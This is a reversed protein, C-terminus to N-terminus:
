LKNIYGQRPSFLMGENLMKKLIEDPADLGEQRAQRLIDEVPIDKGHVKALDDIVDNLVRIRSRQSSTVRAGEARDIDIKGTEPEFGFMRLSAKMLGIARLADERSVVPRLQVKASAESFRMLAEYQRPTIAIPSDEGSRERLTIYFNKLEEAAERSMKPHCNKRAYAIYKRILQTDIAPAGEEKNFFRSRMMHDAIKTDMEPNPLDRMAFKLDFRSLLTEPIDIQEKIPLYPDFRGLKPNGGALVSTQAPLTAVISAKAISVSQQELAEHLAIQDQKDIKEFEDIAILSRNCMVMAGAELVWGGLFEEDKMVTATLGATSVGKGSVYRGRPILRSVVSMLTSKATNHSVIGNAIFRKHNPVEIDYVTAPGGPVIKTIREWNKGHRRRSLGGIKARLKGIRIKKKECNFGIEEAFREISESQRIMLNNGYIRSHIGFRLLLIQIDRLLEIDKAKYLVGNRGRGGHIVSGNGDYLWSLFSAVVSNKSRMVIDPIRKVSVFKLVDALVKSNYVLERSTGHRNKKLEIRPNLGFKEKFMDRLRPVLDLENYNVACGVRYKSAYGDSVLYGLIAALKEDLVDPVKIDKSQGAKGDPVKWGTEQYKRISCPIRRITRVEDGVKMEDLRKWGRKTLLPHNFTGRISKGSETVVEITPQIEYKHFVTATGRRYGEGLLVPLNIKELHRRGVSEIKVISGNGLVIREDGILCSPDGVLLLHIDGRVRTDDSLVKREGGFLQLSIAEKVDDHGFVAPGISAVLKKYIMPDNALEIIKQEDESSIDLEEWETELAEVSNAEIYIDMQRSSTGKMRKPLEKLVGVVKIRNGPDTKNQMRPSTLDEKLYVKINSPREGSTVEFPEEIVLWRADYLKQGVLKFNRKNDCSECEAPSRIIRETQIVSMRAGCSACQFISESVEPRIDSARRVQGEVVIMKGIHEARVNRIRIERSEPINEFRLRVDSEALGTEIQKVADEAASFTEDPNELLFDALEIDFKDVLSFDVLIFKRGEAAATILENRYFESLFEALKEVLDSREM